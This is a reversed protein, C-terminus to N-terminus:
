DTTGTRTIQGKHRPPEPLGQVAGGGNTNRLERRGRRSLEPGYDQIWRCDYRILM